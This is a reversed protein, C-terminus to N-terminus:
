WSAADKVEAYEKPDTPLQGRPDRGRQYGVERRLWGRLYLRKDKRKDMAKHNMAEEIIERCRGNGGLQPSFEAVIEEIFDAAIPLPKRKVEEGRERKDKNGLLPPEQLNTGVPIDSASAEFTVQVKQAIDDEGIQASAHSVKDSASAHSVMDDEG